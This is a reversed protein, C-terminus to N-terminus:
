FIKSPKQILSILYQRKCCQHTMKLQWFFYAVKVGCLLVWREFFFTQLDNELLHHLSVWWQDTLCGQCDDVMGSRTLKLVYLGIASLDSIQNSGCVVCRDVATHATVIDKLLLSCQKRNVKSYTEISWDWSFIFTIWFSQSLSLLIVQCITISISNNQHPFEHLLCLDWCWLQCQSTLISM